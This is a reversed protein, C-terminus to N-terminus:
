IRSTRPQNAACTWAGRIPTGSRSLSSARSCDPCDLWRWQSIQAVYGLLVRQVRQEVDLYIELYAQVYEYQYEFALIEEASPPPFALRFGLSVTEFGGRVTLPLEM